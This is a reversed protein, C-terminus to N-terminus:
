HLTRRRGAATRGVRDRFITQMLRGTGIVIMTQGITHAEGEVIDLTVDAGAATLGRYAREAHVLPVVSDFEGHLLHITTSIREGDSVPTALQGAYSVVCAAAQPHRRALELAVTAGQSFGIVVTQQATLGTDRRLTALQQAVEDSAQQVRPARDTSIGSPDFWDRGQATSSEHPANLIVATAGPFKLQWAIAVPAFVEPTSGAGHLFVLLRGPASPSIPPLELWLPEPPNASHPM